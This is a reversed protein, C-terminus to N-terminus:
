TQSRVVHAAWGGSAYARVPGPAPGGFRVFLPCTASRTVADVEVGLGVGAEPDLMVVSDVARAARVAPRVSGEDAAAFLSDFTLRRGYRLLVGADVVRTGIAAPTGSIVIGISRVDRGRVYIERRPAPGGPRDPLSLGFGSDASWFVPVGTLASRDSLYVGGPTVDTGPAFVGLGRVLLKWLARDPLLGLFAEWSVPSSGLADATSM